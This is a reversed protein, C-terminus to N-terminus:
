TLAASGGTRAAPPLDEPRLAEGDALTDRVWEFIRLDHSRREDDRKRLSALPLRMRPNDALSEAHRDLFAWYLHTIPCNKKPDFACSACYDSMRDIYAAGSVYPKTTMLDGLAFTGMGLVNPEVVWDFADVYAIWFWDALERPSTDLLTALNSLVMLRTIHHSWAEEWVSQVVRDLCGLGSPRGWFAVPLPNSAELTSPAAGGDLEDPGDHSSADAGDARADATRDAASEWTHGTWRASGGDGPESSVPPSPQDPLVRFGDTAHHVHRMFERWGAVQRIFGEKSALPIELEAVEDILRAPLLRGLNVLPSVRTHFLGSSQTSMADEFPGFHEMCRRKAWEWAAEADAASSPLAGVRVEGPHSSFRENVLQVVEETVEDVAFSPPEPVRPEGSWPERNSADHSYRGGLPSGDEMLLGTERRYLRYFADMRWPPGKSQSRTFLDTTTLWTENPVVELMGARALPALDARLEREAPDMVQLPGRERAATALVVRYPDDTMLYHVEVGRAAQELAFHRMNSLLLALKQRHYPRRAAKWRSEVMVIGLEDAPVSRLPGVQDTLQDYPVFVWRRAKKEGGFGGLQELFTGM